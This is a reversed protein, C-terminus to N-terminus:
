CLGFLCAPSLVQPKNQRNGKNNNSSNNINKNITLPAPPPGINPVSLPADLDGLLFHFRFIYNETKIEQKAKIKFSPM